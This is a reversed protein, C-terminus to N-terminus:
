NLTRNFIDFRVRKIVHESEPPMSALQEFAHFEARTAEKSYIDGAVNLAVVSNKERVWTLLAALLAEREAGNRQQTEMWTYAFSREGSLEQDLDSM